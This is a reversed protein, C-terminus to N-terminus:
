PTQTNKRRPTYTHAYDIVQALGYVTSGDPNVYQTIHGNRGWSRITERTIPKGTAATVYAALDAAAGYGTALLDPPIATLKHTGYRRNIQTTLYHHQKTLLEALDEAAPFHATIEHAHRYIYACMVSPRTEELYDHRATTYSLADVAITRLGGPIHEDTSERWLEYELNFAWGGDLHPDASGFHPVMPRLKEGRRQHGKLDNLDAYTNALQKAAHQLAEADIM